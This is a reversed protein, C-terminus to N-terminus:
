PLVRMHRPHARHPSRSLPSAGARPAFKQLLSKLEPSLCLRQSEQEFFGRPDASAKVAYWVYSLRM